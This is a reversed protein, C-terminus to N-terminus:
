GVGLEFITYISPAFRLYVRSGVGLVHAVIVEPKSVLGAVDVVIGLGGTPHTPQIAVSFIALAWPM